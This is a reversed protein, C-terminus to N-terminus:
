EGSDQDDPKVGGTGTLREQRAGPEFHSGALSLMHGLKSRKTELYRQNRPNAPVELPVREVVELGFGSIGVRKRPNNTLLRIKSLRLDKLIQAGIGYDREDARFGLQTNAEVTDLGRDQLHYAKIKNLLGIGRGEQRMYLFVGRGEAQIMEMARHMQEGCDCRLSGLVDGTLCQSHVRVLVPEGNAVDGV